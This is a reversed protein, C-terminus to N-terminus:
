LHFWHIFGTVGAQLVAWVVIATRFSWNMDRRLLLVDDEVLGIRKGQSEKTGDFSQFLRDLTAEVRAVDRRVQSIQEFLVDNRIEESM